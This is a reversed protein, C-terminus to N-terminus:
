RLGRGRKAVLRRRTAPDCVLPRTIEVRDGEALLRDPAASRGYVAYAIEGASTGIRSLLGSAAVADAVRSGAALDLEVRASFDTGVWAVEVRM